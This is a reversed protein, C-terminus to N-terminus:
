PRAFVLRRLQRWGLVSLLLNQLLLMALGAPFTAPLRSSSVFVNERGRTFPQVARDRSFYRKQVIWHVFRNRLEFIHNMFRLFAHYGRGSMEACLFDYYTTPFLLSQREFASVVAAVERLYRKERSLNLLYGSNMFDVAFRAKLKQVEADKLLPNGQLVRGLERELPLLTKLNQLNLQEAPPLRMSRATVLMRGLEPVLFVASFWAVALWLSVPRGRGGPHGILLGLLFFFDLLAFLYLLSLLLVAVDNWGLPLGALWAVLGCLGALLALALNLWFLRALVTACFLRGLPRRQALVRLAHPSPFTAAGAVMMLLSGLLLMAGAFDRFYGRQRFLQRGKYSGDVRLVETMDINSQVDRLVVTNAFFVGASGPEFLVKFGVGGYQMYNAFQRVKEEEYELQLGVQKLEARWEQVGVVLFYVAAFAISGLLWLQPRSGLLRRM